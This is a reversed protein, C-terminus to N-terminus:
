HCSEHTIQYWLLGRLLVTTTRNLENSPVCPLQYREWPYYDSLCCLLAVPTRVRKSRDRLRARLGCCWSYERKHYIETEKKTLHYIMRGLNNKTGFGFAEKEIDIVGLHLPSRLEMGQIAGSQGQTSLLNSNKTHSSRPSFGTERVM